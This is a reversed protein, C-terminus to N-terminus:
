QIVIRQKIMGSLSTIKNDLERREKAQVIFEGYRDLSSTIRKVNNGVSLKLNMSIIDPAEILNYIRSDISRVFGEPFQFFEVGAAKDVRGSEIDVSEGLAVSLM